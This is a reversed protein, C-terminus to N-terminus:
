SQYGMLYQKPDSATMLSSMMCGGAAGCAMIQAMNGPTVGGIAYVPLRIGLCINKLFDLGRGPLGKKCDTDFIHGATVYDAGLAQAKKADDLSHVSTGVIEFGDPRRGLAILAPLPLHIKKVGAREAADVFTHAFLPVGFADCISKCQLLLAEYDAPPMDKERLVIQRPRAAAVRGIQRLFASEGVPECFPSPAVGGGSQCSLSSVVGGGFVQRSDQGSAKCLRRNTICIINEPQCFEQKAPM